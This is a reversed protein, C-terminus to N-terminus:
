FRGAAPPPRRRFLHVFLYWSGAAAALHKLSHGSVFGTARYIPGDLLEFVKSLAYLGLGLAMWKTGAFPAPFLILIVPVLVVAWTQLLFYFRLDDVWRWYLLSGVGAAILPIWLARGLRPDVRELVMIGMLASFGLAMPLWDWFLTGNGPAWHYYGSGFGTLFVSLTLIIWPLRAAPEPYLLDKRALCNYLGLLGAVLFPLNSAVDMFHPIGFLTRQDAFDHYSAPQPFPKVLFAAGLSGVALVAILARKWAAPDARKEGQEMCSTSTYSRAPM